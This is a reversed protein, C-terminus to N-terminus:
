RCALVPETKLDLLTAIKVKGAEYNEAEVDVEGTTYPTVNPDRPQDVYARDEHSRDGWGGGCRRGGGPHTSM